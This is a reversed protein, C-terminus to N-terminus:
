NLIENDLNTAPRYTQPCHLNLSAAETSVNKLGAEYIRLSGWEKEAIAAPLFV